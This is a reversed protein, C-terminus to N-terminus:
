SYYSYHIIGIIGASKACVKTDLATVLGVTNYITNKSQVAGFIYNLFQKVDSLRAM